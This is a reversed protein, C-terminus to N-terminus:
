QNPKAASIDGLASEEDREIALDGLSIIGIPHGKAVVPLCRVSHERM